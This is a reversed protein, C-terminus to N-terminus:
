LFPLFLAFILLGCSCFIYAMVLVGGVRREDSGEYKYGAFIKDIQKRRFHYWGYVGLPVAAAMFFTIFRNLNKNEWFQEAVAYDISQIFLFYVSLCNLLLLLVLTFFAARRAQNTFLGHPNNGEQLRYYFYYFFNLM